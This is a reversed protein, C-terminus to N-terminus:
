KKMLGTQLPILIGIKKFCLWFILFCFNVLLFIPFVLGANALVEHKVPDLRDSYGIFLMIFVTALNAGAILQLFFKRISGFMINNEIRRVTRLFAVSRKLQLVIM